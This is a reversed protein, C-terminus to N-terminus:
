GEGERWHQWAKMERDLFAARFQKKTRERECIDRHLASKTPPCIKMKKTWCWMRGDATWYSPHVIPTMASVQSGIERSHHKGISKSQLWEFTMHVHFLYQAYKEIFTSIGGQFVCFSLKQSTRYDRQHDHMKTSATTMKSLHQISRASSDPCQIQEWVGRMIRKARGRQHLREETGFNKEESM